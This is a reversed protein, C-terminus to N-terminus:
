EKLTEWESNEIEENLKKLEEATLVHDDEPEKIRKNKNEKIRKNYPYGHDAIREARHDSQQDRQHESFHESKFMDGAPEEGQYKEYNVVRIIFGDHGLSRIQIQKEEAFLTLYKKVTNRSMNASIALKELSTLMEGRKVRYRGGAGWGDQWNSHLLIDIWLVTASGNGHWRWDDFARSLKIYGGNAM